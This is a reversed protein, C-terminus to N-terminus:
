FVRIADLLYLWNSFFAGSFADTYDRGPSFAIFNMFDLIKLGQLQYTRDNYDKLWIQIGTVSYVMIVFSILMLAHGCKIKCPKRSMSLLALDTFLTFSVLSM